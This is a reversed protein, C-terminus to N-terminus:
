KHPKEDLDQQPFLSCTLFDKYRILLQNYNFKFHIKPEIGGAGRSLPPMQYNKVGVWKHSVSYYTM